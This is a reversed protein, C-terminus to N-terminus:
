NEKKIPAEIVKQDDWFSSRGIFFLLESNKYTRAKWIQKSFGIFFRLSSKKYTIQRWM